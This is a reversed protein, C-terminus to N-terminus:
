NEVDCASRKGCISPLEVPIEEEEEEDMADDDDDEEEKDDEDDEDEVCEGDELEGNGGQCEGITRESDNREDWGRGGNVRSYEEGQGFYAGSLGILVNLTALEVDFSPSTSSLDARLSCCRRYLQRVISSVNRDLPKELRALLGYLWQGRASTITTRFLVIHLFLLISISTLLHLCAFCDVHVVFRVSSRCVKGGVLERSISVSTTDNSSGISPTLHHYTHCKGDRIVCCCDIWLLFLLLSVNFPGDFQTIFSANTTPKDIVHHPIEGTWEPYDKKGGNTEEDVCEDVEEDVEEDGEDVDEHSTIPIGGIRGGGPEGTMTADLSQTETDTSTGLMQSVDMDMDVGFSRSLELKRQEIFFDESIADTCASSATTVRASSSSSSSSSVQKDMAETSSEAGLCFKHWAKEDKLQPVPISREKSSESEALRAMMSRLESFTAIVDREWDPKPLYQEPCSAVMEVKPMYQTQKGAYSSPDIDVRTVLPLANAQYRVWAMYQEVTMNSIDGTTEVSPDFTVEEDIPLAPEM